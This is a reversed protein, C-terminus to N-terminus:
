WITLQDPPLVSQPYTRNGAIQNLAIGSPVDLDAMIDGAGSGDSNASRINDLLVNTWYFKSAAAEASAAFLVYSSLVTLLFIIIASCITCRRMLM